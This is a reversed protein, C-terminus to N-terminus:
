EMNLNKMLHVRLRNANAVADNGGQLMRVLVLVEILMNRASTSAVKDTETPVEAYYQIAGVRSSVAAAFVPHIRPGHQMWFPNFSLASALDVLAKVAGQAVEANARHKIVEETVFVANALATAVELADNSIYASLTKEIADVSYKM